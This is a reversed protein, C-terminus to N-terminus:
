KKARTKVVSRRPAFRQELVPLAAEYIVLRDCAALQYPDLGGAEAAKIEPLNAAARALNLDPGDTIILLLEGSEVLKLKGLASLLQRTKGKGLALRKTIALRGERAIESLIVRCGLRYMAQNLGLKRGGGRKAFVVGGGRWLPSRRSGARARGTHKQRWPKRGGGRVEARNKQRASFARRNNLYVRLLQHVLSPKAEVSFLAAPLLFIGGGIGAVKVSKGAAKAVPKAAPRTAAKRIPKGTSRRM